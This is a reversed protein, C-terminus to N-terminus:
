MAVKIPWNCNHCFKKQLPLHFLKAEYRLGTSQQGFNAVLSFILFCLDFLILTVLSDKQWFPMFFGSIKFFLKSLLKVNPVNLSKKALFFFLIMEM